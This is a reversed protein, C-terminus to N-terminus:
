KLVDNKNEIKRRVIKIKPHAARENKLENVHAVIKEIFGEKEGLVVEDGSILNEGIALRRLEHVTLKSLNDFIFETDEELTTQKQEPFPPNEM